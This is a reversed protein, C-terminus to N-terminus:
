GPAALQLQLALRVTPDELDLDVLDALRAM